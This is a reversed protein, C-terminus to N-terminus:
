QITARCKVTVIPDEIILIVLVSIVLM